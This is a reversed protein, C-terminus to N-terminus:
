IIGTERLWTGIRLTSLTDVYACQDIGDFISQDPVLTILNCNRRYIAMADGDSLALGGELIRVATKPGVGRIGKINDVSDGILAKYSVFREPSIGYKTKIWARDVLSTLKGNYRLVTVRDSVLQFFDSDWSAIVTSMDCFAAYAAIVDDAECGPREVYAISLRGLCTQIDALQSFPNLHPPKEAFSPRQSKYESYLDKRLGGGEADFVVLLHTANSRAVIKKLIGLFGIIGHVAKGSPLIREPIGFFARMLLNHGDVLLLCDTRMSSTMIDRRIESSM